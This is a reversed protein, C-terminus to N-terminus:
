IYIKKKKGAFSVHIIIEFPRIHNRGDDHRLVHPESGSDKGLQSKFVPKWIPAKMNGKCPCGVLVRGFALDSGTPNSPGGKM